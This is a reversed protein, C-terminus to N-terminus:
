GYREIAKRTNPLTSLNVDLLSQFLKDYDEENFNKGKESIKNLASALLDLHEDLQEGTQYNLVDSVTTLAWKMYKESM